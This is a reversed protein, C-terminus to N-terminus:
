GGMLGSLASSQSNMQNILLELQTFKNTYYDVKNSMKDQWESIEDEVDKMQNLLTNNLAATPSYKSGAKEILIGKVDGSTSAYKDTISTLTAMLGDTAAGNEKSKTFAEQVKDPDSELAERFTQEDFTLTTLGDSYSTSIGISRLTVGDAGSSSIANRLDNYLSSLDSDMFLIGTKAKEEYNKIATESMGEMDEDSLPEYKSGDNKQLPMDSYASKVEKIITNLDDVMKKVAEVVKDADTKSTFTVQKDPDLQNQAIATSVTEVTEDKNFVGSVTINMGDLDFSNSARTLEMTQGNITAILKADQGATYTGTDSKLEGTSEDREVTGFLAAGLGGAEIEIQGGTGSDKATFVFQGTTKSYSVNVGAETNSNINNIITNLETDETYSGITVGNIVLDYSQIRNGDEDILYGDKDVANGNADVYQDAIPDGNSDTKQVVSGAGETDHGTLKSFDLGKLEGLTKTTNVYSTLGSGIGLVDGVDENSTTVSLTSGNGVTFSLQSSDDATLTIRGSGFAKDLEAQLAEKFKKTTEKGDTDSPDVTIEPLEITKSKGDLTVTITKGSLYEAVPKKEVLDSGATSNLRFSNSKGSIIDDVGSIMDKLKGSVGAVSVSNGAGSKDSFGVGGNAEVTVNILTDASVVKGSSTSIQQEKLKEVIANQFAVADFQGDKVFLEREGFDISVTSDGYNLTLSGSLNSLDVNSALNQMTGGTVTGNEVGSLHNGSVTYRATTALQKVANLTIDSSTKGSATVLNSYTGNTTTVVANNFFSSSALNTNSYVYSSYNRYFEVLKDSISQYAEQQWQLKTNKNQLSQIKQQYSQVVGSILEETDLGSALGSIINYTRNGYISSSSSSSSLSNVSAM